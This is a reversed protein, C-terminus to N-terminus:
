MVSSLQNAIDLKNRLHDSPLLNTQPLTFNVSILIKIPLNNQKKVKLRLISKLFLKM